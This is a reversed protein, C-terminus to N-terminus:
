FFAQPGPERRETHPDWSNLDELKTIPVKVKQAM